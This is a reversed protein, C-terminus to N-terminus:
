NSSNGPSTNPAGGSTQSSSSNANPSNETPCDTGGNIPQGPNQVGELNDLTCNYSKMLRWRFVSQPENGFGNSPDLQSPACDGQQLVNGDADRQILGKALVEGTSLHGSLLNGVPETFCELKGHNDSSNIHPCTTPEPSGGPPGDPGYAIDIELDCGPHASAYDTVEQTFQQANELPQYSPDNQILNNEDGSYGWQVIGYHQSDSTSAAIASSRNLSGFMQPLMAVPNFLKSLIASFSSFIPKGYVSGYLSMALHSLLSQSNSIAFYRQYSSQQKFQAAIYAKDSTDSQVTEPQTLPRGFFEQRETDNANLNAGMDVEDAYQVGTALGNHAQGSSSAVLLNALITGGAIGAIKAAERGTGGKSFNKLDKVNSLLKQLVTKPASSKLLDSYAVKTGLRLFVDKIFATAGAQAADESGGTFIFGAISLGLGLVGLGILGATSTIPGCVRGAASGIVGGVTSGLLKSFINNDTSTYQGNAAAQPSVYNSTDIPQGNARMIANSNNINAGDLKWNTAGVAEANTNGYKQQDAQSATAYFETQLEQNQSNITPGSNQLSGSYVICVPLAVAVFLSVTSAVTELAGGTLSNTIADAAKAFIGSN